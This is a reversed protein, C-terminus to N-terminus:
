IFINSGSISFEYSIEYYLSIFFPIVNHASTRYLINTKKPNWLVLEGLATGSLILSADYSIGEIKACYLTSNDECAVKQRSEVQNNPKIELEIAVNHGTVILLNNLGYVKVCIIWDNLVFKQIKEFSKQFLIM